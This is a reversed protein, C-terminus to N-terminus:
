ALVDCPIKQMLQWSDRIALRLFFDFAAWAFARSFSPDGITMSFDKGASGGFAMGGLAKEL